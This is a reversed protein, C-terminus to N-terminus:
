LNNAKKADRAGGSKPNAKRKSGDLLANPVGQSATWLVREEVALNVNSGLAPLHGGQPNQKLIKTHARNARSALSHLIELMSNAQRATLVTGRLGIQILGLHCLGLKVLRVSEDM